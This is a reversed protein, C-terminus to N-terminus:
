PLPRVFVDRFFLPGGHHQLEISGSAPLPTDRAWYNEMPVRDAVLVGNLYVTVIDGVMVIEFRNWEGVPRDAHVLPHSPGKQNNYLGGSGEPNDWIQVQPTGRLYIGSDGGPPIKWDVRLAFNGYDRMTCLSNGGGDYTLVGNQVTWHARMQANAATQAAAQQEPTMRAKQPPEAELGRWGSLDRGNFLASWGPPPANQASPRRRAVLDRLRINRFDIPDGHGLFGIHGETRQLGPHQALTDLNTVKDLDADVTVKGNVTVKVRRGACEIEEANWEGPPKLAGRKAAAVGYISGHFQWPKLDAYQPDSDDLIQCEMGVYAADGNLPARLGVGNNGGKQLRFEFRLVFDSYSKETFLNGGSGAPCSLLGDRAVYGNGAPGVFTWGQLSHGDFLPVFGPERSRVPATTLCLLVFLAPLLRLTRFMQVFM